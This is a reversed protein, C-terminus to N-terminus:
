KKHINIIRKSKWIPIEWSQILSKKSIEYLSTNQYKHTNKLQITCANDLITMFPQISMITIASAIALSNHESIGTHSHIKKGFITRSNFLILYTLFNKLGCPILMSNITKQKHPQNIITLRNKANNQNTLITEALGSILACISNNKFNNEINYATMTQLGIFGSTRSILRFKLFDIYGYYVGHKLQQKASNIISIKENAQMRVIVANPFYTTMSDLTAAGVIPAFRTFFLKDISPSSANKDQIPM